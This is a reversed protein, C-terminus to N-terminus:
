INVHGCSRRVRLQTPLVVKRKPTTAERNEIEDILIELAKEAIEEIPQAVATIPPYTIDFFDLDDFGVVAVDMPIRIQLKNLTKIGAVTLYNTAFYLADVKYPPHILERIATAITGEVDNYDVERVVKNDFKIGEKKLANKYGAFRKKIVGLHSSVSIFGIRRSGQGILHRILDESGMENDVTVYNTDIRPFYRDILVFPYNEKKLQLIQSSDVKSPSIILGDVQRDKLMQILRQEKDPNEDSSCYMINYGHKEAATEVVKAIKAYFVNSIDSVVLGISNTKGLSLGRALQNPKYNLRDALEFIKEQTERSIKKEDGKNNIVWSVTTKSVGLQDAIDKLSTKKM